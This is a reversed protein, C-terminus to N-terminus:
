EVYEDRKELRVIYNFKQEVTPQKKNILALNMNAKFRATYKMFEERKKGALVSKVLKIASNPNIAVTGRYLGFHLHPGTSLGTSGVYAVVQGKKVHEGRRIGRKFKELHGYLTKYGDEHAIVITNGYGSKKGEFIIRGSRAAKVPTGRPAAYDIGLHARYRHLIPHWRKYTFRDSIRTYHVPLSLFFGEVERGNADYYRNKNYLFVYHKVGRVEVMSAEITPSGFQQGLRIKKSYFIVLNDGKRLNKFNVSKKYSQIFEHALLYNHTADIIDQYPSKTIQIAITEQEEQYAIPTTTLIYTKDQKEIHLQLEEGVPILVQQITKDDSRLIQFKTGSIIEAALEKDRGDLNYYINLPLSNNSLFDLFTEGNKWTSEELYAANLCSAM